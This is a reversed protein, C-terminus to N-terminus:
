YIHHGRASRSRHLLRGISFQQSGVPRVVEPNEVVPVGGGHEGEQVSSRGIGVRGGVQRGLGERLREEGPPPESVRPAAGSGPEEADGM